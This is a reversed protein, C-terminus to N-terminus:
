DISIKKGRLSIQDKKDVCLFGTEELSRDVDALHYKEIVQHVFEPGDVEIWLGYKLSKDSNPLKPIFTYKNKFFSLPLGILYVRSGMERFIKEIEPLTLEYQKIADMIYQGAIMANNYEPINLIQHMTLFYNIIEEKEHKM